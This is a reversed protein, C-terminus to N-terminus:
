RRKFQTSKARRGRTCVLRKEQQDCWLEQGPRYASRVGGLPQSRAPASGNWSRTSGTWSSGSCVGRTVGM